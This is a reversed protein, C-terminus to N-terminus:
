LFLRHGGGAYTFQYLLTKANGLGFDVYPGGQDVHGNDFSASFTQGISLAKSFPRTASAIDSGHPKGQKNAYEGFATKNASDIGPGTGKGNDNSTYLFFGSSKGHTLVFPKFGTGQNAGNAFPHAKGYNGANDSAVTQASAALPPLLTTVALVVALFLCNLTAYM